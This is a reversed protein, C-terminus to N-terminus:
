EAAAAEPKHATSPGPDGQGSTEAQLLAADLRRLSPSALWFLIVILAGCGCAGAVASPAGVRDALAGVPLTGLLPLSLSLLMYSSIRGRVDDPVLMQIASNNLTGYIASLTYGFLALAVAPLFWPSLAFLGLFIAFGLGSVLMVKLRQDSKRRAVWIAGAVGGVGSMGQLVGFGTSGVNWVEEAFVVMLQQAPMALFMPVLGFFMLVRLVRNGMLYRFGEAMEQGVSARPGEPKPAQHRPVGLVTFLALLYLGTGVAYTGVVGIVAILVGSLLPGLVRSASLAGMGIAMAGTLAERGVVNVVLAQRAPMSIPFALGMVFTGALLQWFELKGLALLTLIVAESSLVAAQAVLILRRREMRDAIVGGLPAVIMMPIAAAAAIGGLALKSGTLDFALWSRVVSQGHLALFFTVNSGLLWRYHVNALPSQPAPPSQAPTQPIHGDM